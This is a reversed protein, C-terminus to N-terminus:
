NGHARTAAAGRIWADMDQPEQSSAPVAGSQLQEVPRGPPRTAAPLKAALADAAATIEEETTGTLFDAFESLGKEAAIRQRSVQLRMNALESEAAEARATAKEQETMDRQRIADLEKRLKEAEREHRRSLTKWKVDEGTDPAADTATPAAQPDAPQETPTATDAVEPTEPM